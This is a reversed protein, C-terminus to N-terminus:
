ETQLSKVPNLMASRVGHYTVKVLATVVSLGAGDNVTDRATCLHKIKINKDFRIGRGKSEEGSKGIM